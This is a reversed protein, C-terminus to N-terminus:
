SYLPSKETEKANSLKQYVKYVEDFEHDVAAFQVTIGELRKQWLESKSELRDGPHTLSRRLRKIEVQYLQERAYDRLRKALDRRNSVRELTEHALRLDESRPAM